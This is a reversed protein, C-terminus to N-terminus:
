LDEKAKRVRELLEDLSIPRYDTQEVCVNIYPVDYPRDMDVAGNVVKHRIAKPYTRTHIHGHANAVFKGLSDPHVPIHTLLIRDHVHSGKIKEFFEAYHKITDLDHNGMILRKHGHLRDLIRHKITHIKRHMTLDGLHWVHDEPKVVENWRAIMTENMEELDAFPRNSYKIINAHDWHHDSTYWITM